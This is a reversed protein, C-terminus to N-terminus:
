RSNLAAQQRAEEEQRNAETAEVQEDRETPNTAEQNKVEDSKTTGQANVTSNKPPKQRGQEPEANPDTTQPGPDVANTANTNNPNVQVRDASTGYPMYPWSKREDSESVYNANGGAQIAKREWMVGGNPGGENWGLHQEHLVDFTCSCTILKPYLEAVNTQFWGAELNPQFSFDNLKGLLGSVDDKKILNTFKIRLLPPKSISSADGTIKYSPYLFRMMKSMRALNQQAEVVSAAPVDWSMTVTRKNGQFTYIPDNRGYVAEENWNSSISDQFATLFAKFAVFRTSPEGHIYEFQIYYQSGNALNNTADSFYQRRRGALPVQTSAIGFNPKPPPTKKYDPM